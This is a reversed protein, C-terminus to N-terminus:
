RDLYRIFSDMRTQINKAGIPNQSHVTFARPFKILRKAIGLGELDLAMDILWDVFRLATDEGGLDHDFSIFAPPGNDKVFLIAAESSRVTVWRDGAPVRDPPERVDDVFLSYKLM